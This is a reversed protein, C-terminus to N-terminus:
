TKQQRHQEFTMYDQRARASYQFTYSIQTYLFWKASINNMLNQIFNNILSYNHNYYLFINTDYSTM